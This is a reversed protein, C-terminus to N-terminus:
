IFSSAAKGSCLMVTVDNNLGLDVCCQLLLSLVVRPLFFFVTCRALVQFCKIPDKVQDFSPLVTVNLVLNFETLDKESHGM